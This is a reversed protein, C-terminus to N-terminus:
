AGLAEQVIPAWLPNFHPNIQIADAFQARAGDTDGLAHRIAGAHYHFLANRTGLALAKDSWERAEADRGNVHLAWGYADAMDLFQRHGIAVEAERLAAAPDGHDAQFLVTDVDLAVGNSEFLRAVEGFVRYQAQAEDTRGLSQLLEGYQLLYAPEPLRDVVAGYDSVAADIRGLAAQAKARGELLRAFAPDADIGAQYHVLAGAPDGNHFALEGLYYRAFARDAPTAADDLARSMIATAEAVNGRLEWTYSARALSATDPVLDVMRQVAEFAAQYNGLQTEADGLLGWLTANAPNIALGKQAWGRAGAFDHRASALAAMGACAGYNDATDLALSHELAGEAKPYYSPDVTVRAQEVYALGLTAWAVPDSPVQGLRDQLSAITAPLDAGAPRVLAGSPRVGGAAAPAESPSRGVMSLAGAAFLLVAVGIIAPAVVVARRSVRRAIVPGHVM